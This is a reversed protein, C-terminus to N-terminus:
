ELKDQLEQKLEIEFSDAFQLIERTQQPKIREAEYRSANRLKRFKHLKNIKARSLDLYEATWAIAAVHDAAKFGEVAMLSEIIERLSEYVNELIQFANKDKIAQEHAHQLRKQSRKLLSRAKGLDPSVERLRNDKLYREVDNM